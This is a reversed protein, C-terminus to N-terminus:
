RLASELREVARGVAVRHAHFVDPDRSFDTLNPLLNRLDLARLAEDVAPGTVKQDEARALLRALRKLYAFDEIGDRVAALRISPLPGNPSPYLLVGNGNAPTDDAPQTWPDREGPAYGNWYHVGEAGLAWAAWFLMRQEVASFEIFLNPYPRGPDHNVHIWLRRGGSLAELLTSQVPSDFMALHVNWIDAAEPLFPELGQVTVLTDPTQPDAQAEDLAELAASWDAREPYRAIEVIDPPDPIGFAELLSRTATASDGSFGTTGLAAALADADLRIDIVPLDEPALAFGFVDVEIDISALVDGNETLELTATHRGPAAREPVRVTCWLATTRGPELAFVGAAPGLPDPYDGTPNEFHSPVTVPVHRVARLEVADAPIGARGREAAFETTHVSIERSRGDLPQLLIQASEAEGRAAAIRIAPPTDEPRSPADNAFVKRTGDASAIALAGSEYHPAPWPRPERELRYPGDTWPPIPALGGRLSFRTDIGEHPARTTPNLHVPEANKQVQALFDYTGETLAPLTYELPVRRGREASIDRDPLPITEDGNLLVSKFRSDSLARLPVLQVTLQGRAYDLSGIARETAFDIRELGRVLAIVYRTVWDEGPELSFPAFWAEFGGGGTEDPLLAKWSHLDEADFVAVFTEALESDVAAAWNRAAPHFGEIRPSLVGEPTPLHIRTADSWAGGPAPRSRVWPAIWRAAEGDNRIRWTVNLAAAGPVFEMRREVSLGSIRPGDADYRVTTVAEPTVIDAIEARGNLRRGPAHYSGIGFGEVLLGEAGAFNASEGRYGFETLAGGRQPDVRYRVIEGAVEIARTTEAARAGTAGGALVVAAWFLVPPVRM